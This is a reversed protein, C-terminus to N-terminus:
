SKFPDKVANLIVISSGKVTIGLAGTMGIRFATFRPIRMVM